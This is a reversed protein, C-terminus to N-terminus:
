PRLGLARVYGPNVRCRDLTVNALLEQLIARAEAPVPRLPRGADYDYPNAAAFVVVRDWGAPRAFSVVSSTADMKKYPWFAWGIGNSEALRVMSAIWQDDNEGSEGLWIPVDHKARFDLFPKLSAETVESWYKHFAYVLNPAFPPGFVSFETNWQAGGLIIVHDPDVERIAATARKYLPELSANYKKWDLFTGIPENLLEYGLVAPEGRYRQAIRRWVQVM